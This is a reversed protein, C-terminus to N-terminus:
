YRTVKYWVKGVRRTDTIFTEASQDERIKDAVPGGPSRLNMHWPFGVSIGNSTEFRAFMLVM